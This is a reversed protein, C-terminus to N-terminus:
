RRVVVDDIEITLGEKIDKIDAAAIRDRAQIVEISGLLMECRYVNFTTGIDIGNQRGLDIVV